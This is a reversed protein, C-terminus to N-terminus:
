DWIIWKLIWSAPHPFLTWEGDDNLASLVSSPLGQPFPTQVMHSHDAPIPDSSISKFLSCLKQSEVTGTRWMMSACWSGWSPLFIWVGKSYLSWLCFKWLLGLVCGLHCVQECTGKGDRIELSLSGSNSKLTWPVPTICFGKWYFILERKKIKIKM